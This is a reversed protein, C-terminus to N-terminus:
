ENVRASNEKMDHRCIAISKIVTWLVTWVNYIAFDIAFSILVAFFIKM